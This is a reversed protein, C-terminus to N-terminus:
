GCRIPNIFYIYSPINIQQVGICVIFQKKNSKTKNQKNVFEQVNLFEKTLVINLFM